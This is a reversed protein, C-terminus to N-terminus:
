KRAIDARNKRRIGLGCQRDTWFGLDKLQWVESFESRLGQIQWVELNM